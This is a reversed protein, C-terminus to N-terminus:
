GHSRRQHGPLMAALEERTAAGTKAMARYIHNEVTRASLTLRGAIVPTTLGLGLLKVIERERDTFPLRETAQGLAPTTAGCQEALTQARASCTLASGRREARRYAMAAHAAADIAGILDGISEFERSVSVLEAGDGAQMAAAFRAAVVVRSGEVIAELEQLRVARSSDGFQTATQLCMVETAFQGNARANEATSFVISVAENVAGQCAAVWARALNRENDWMRRESEGSRWPRQWEHAAALSDAAENCRGHMALAITHCLQYRYGWGVGHGAAHLAEVAQGLLSCATRVHGAGLAARGVLGTGLPQAVGPLDASERRADDAVESARKVRGTVLLASIYADTINFRTHPTDFSRAAAAYGAQAAAEADSARGAEAAISAIAWATSSGAVAPLHDLALDTSAQMAAKPNDMTFWYMALFADICDRANPPATRSAADIINKAEAADALAFLMNNARLYGLRARDDDSIEKTALEELLADAEKGRDLWSLAHARTFYAEPGAGAQIAAHALREALRLDALWTAGRASRVLLDPDPDRDSDLTLTARRVVVRMDDGEDTAALDAAVLGRLRRLRMPAARRRRVESYLPHAVRVEVGGDVDNVSGLTILGRVDAEEVAAAGTIRTLSALQMPEGVALVDVVDSVADPLAGIRSDILDVLSSPVVPDTIWRWYGHGEALRGETVEQEVINRMYLANGRTLEWVRQAADPELPGGLAASVLVTTEDRSLPQLYLRDFEGDKLLEQTGAAISEGDRLTVVVKAAARQVIQQLVFTSLDDLLSVDDVGIVVRKGSAASTLSEIVGRVLQSTDSGEPEAWFSLAGLPLARGSSTGVVWRVEYGNAAALSLAERAIRSKGVGAAGYVAIGSTDRGLIATEILRM